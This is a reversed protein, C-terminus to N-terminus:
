SPLAFIRSISSRGDLSTPQRRYWTLWAELSNAILTEPMPAAQILFFWHFYYTAFERTVNTYLRHTPVIDIVALREVSDRHDLAMRHAVRGGRDHGVVSFRMFGLQEMVEVQDQAMARKSYGSHNDGEAPRSSDGYGRLDPAVVTFKQALQPAIKRWIIHTQPYGHLLLVPPGSGGILLHITSDSSKIERTQFGPFFDTAPLQRQGSDAPSGNNPQSVVSELRPVAVLAGSGVSIASLFSRRNV